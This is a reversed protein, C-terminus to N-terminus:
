IDLTVKRPRTKPEYMKDLEEMTLGKLQKRNEEAKARMEAFAKDAKAKTEESIPFDMVTEGHEDVFENVLQFAYIQDKVKIGNISRFPYGIFNATVYIFGEEYDAHITHINGKAIAIDGTPTNLILM